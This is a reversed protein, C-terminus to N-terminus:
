SRIEVILVKYSFLAHVSINQWTLKNLFANINLLKPHAFKKAYNQVFM